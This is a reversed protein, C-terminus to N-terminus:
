PTDNVLQFQWRFSTGQGELPGQWEAYLEHNSERAGYQYSVWSNKVEAHVESDPMRMSLFPRGEKFVAVTNAEEQIKLVLNPAFHFFWELRHESHGSFKDALEWSGPAPHALERIFEVNDTYTLTGKVQKGTWEPCNAEPIQQWNFNPLPRAQDCGDIMVTNHAATLRFSDRWPGHYQYTGSDVLLPSGNVWLVFSLLDCHAHACHMEGGLGFPGCRLCAFDTDAAWADRIIYVGAQPFARSTQEPARAKLQEWRQLGSVGLLLFAEEDFRGAGFKLDPRDFLAAGASLIPRFDWFDKDQGLGLARGYDSDGWLPATGAPTTTFLVYELMSELTNELVPVPPLAGQRSRAVVLLLLEGVFRHYGTAQEKNVGDRHTQAVAQQDLLRLGTERWAASRRFEPFAAGVIVLGTLEAMMHNNPVDGRTAQLHSSVFDTQQWLSKLFAKRTKDEFQPSDRFFQFAATWALLRISVELPYYWNVGHRLPNTEIWHLIQASFADVYKPNGTLWYAMGLKVFHQHRNLEWFTILDVPRASGLMQDLHARYLLPWGWGTVPDRQWDIGGPFTFVQGLLHLKNLCVADAASVVASVYDPYLQSLPGATEPSSEHPLFFSSAPRNALHKLLDEVSKWNGSTRALLEADSMGRRARWGWLLSQASVNLMHMSRAWLRRLTGRLGLETLRDFYHSVTKRM